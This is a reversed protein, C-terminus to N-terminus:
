DRCGKKHTFISHINYHVAPPLPIPYRSLQHIPFNFELRNLFQCKTNCFIDYFNTNCVEQYRTITTARCYLGSPTIWPSWESLKEAQSMSCGAKMRIEETYCEILKQRNFITIMPQIVGNIMKIEAASAYSTNYMFLFIVTLLLSIFRNHKM